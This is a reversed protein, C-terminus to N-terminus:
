LSKSSKIGLLGKLSVSGGTSAKLPNKLPDRTAEKSWPEETRGQPSSNVPEGAPAGAGGGAMGLRVTGQHLGVLVQAPWSKEPVGM